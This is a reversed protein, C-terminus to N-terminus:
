GWDPLDRLHEVIADALRDPAELAVLHAVNWWILARAHPLQKELHVATAPVDSVDMAGAVALVPM